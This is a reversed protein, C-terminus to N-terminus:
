RWPIFSRSKGIPLLKALIRNLSTHIDKNLQIEAVLGMSEEITLTSRLSRLGLLLDCSSRSCYACLDDVESLM